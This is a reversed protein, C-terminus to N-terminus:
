EVSGDYVPLTAITLFGADNTLDSTKSPILAKLKSWLYTLGSHDLYKTTAM